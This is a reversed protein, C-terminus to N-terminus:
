LAKVALIPLIDLGTKFSNINKANVNLNTLENWHGTVRNFFFEYRVNVFHCFDDCDKSPFVERKLRKSHSTAVRSRLKSVFQLGSHCDFSELGNVIKYTHILDGKTRGEVLSRIGWIKLREEYPLDKLSTPIKSLM